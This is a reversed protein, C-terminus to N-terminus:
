SAADPAVPVVPRKLSAPSRAAAAPSRRPPVRSANSCRSRRERSFRSTLGVSIPDPHTIPEDSAVALRGVVLRAGLPEHWALRRSEWVTFEVVM